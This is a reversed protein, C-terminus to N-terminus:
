TPEITLRQSVLTRVKYTLVVKENVKVGGQVGSYSKFKGEESAVVVNGTVTCDMSGEASQANISCSAVLLVLFIVNKM